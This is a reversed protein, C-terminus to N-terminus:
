FKAGCSACFESGQNKPTGCYPCNTQVVPQPQQMPQQTPNVQGNMPQVPTTGGVVPQVTKTGAEKKWILIGCILSGVIGVLIVWFGIGYSAKYASGLISAYSSNYASITDKIDMWQNLFLLASLVQCITAIIAKKKWLLIGVAAIGLIVIFIGDAIEGNNSIYKIATSGIKYLPLFCGVIALVVCGIFGFYLTKNEQPIELKLGQNQNPMPYGNMGMPSTQNQNM